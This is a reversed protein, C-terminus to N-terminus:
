HAGHSPGAEWHDVRWPEGESEYYKNRALRMDVHRHEGSAPDALFFKAGVITRGGDFVAESLSELEIQPRDVNAFDRVLPDQKLRETAIRNLEENPRPEAGPEPRPVLGGAADGTLLARGNVVDGETMYTLWRQGAAGAQEQLMRDRVESRVLSAVLCITGLALGVRALGAGTLAGDSLRIKSLALLSVGIAALPVLFFLPGILALVSALGLVLAIVALPALQSYKDVDAPELSPKVTKADQLQSSRNSSRPM